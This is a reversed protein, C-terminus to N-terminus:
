RRCGGSYNFDTAKTEGSTGDMLDEIGVHRLTVNVITASHGSGGKILVIIHTFGTIIGRFSFCEQELISNLNATFVKSDLLINVAGLAIKLETTDQINADQIIRAVYQAFRWKGQPYDHATIDGLIEFDEVLQVDLGFLKKHPTLTIVSQDSM